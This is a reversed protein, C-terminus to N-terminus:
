FRLECNIKEEGYMKCGNKMVDYVEKRLWDPSIVEIKNGLSLLEQKFDFTPSLYYSFISDNEKIESEQQSHHLPLSQMYKRQNGFVKLQVICPSIDEDIVIGFVNDFFTEPNFEKPMKFKKETIKLNKIRDLSFTRLEEYIPTKAVVYWRQKFIKVCYPEIEFTNPEERWFSHYTMQLTQEERMAEIITTLYRDGSPIKEYLIRNKLKHSDSLLNNVAFSNLLRTSIGGKEMDDRNEIFYKYDDFKDCEINIDFMEEIAQRHNNFTRRPLTEESENLNSRKWLKNIEDFTIKEKRYITDVLWAYRRFLNATNHKSFKRDTM